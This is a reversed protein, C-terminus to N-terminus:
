VKTFLNLLILANFINVANLFIISEWDFVQVHAQKSWSNTMNNLLIKHLEMMGIKDTMKEGPFSDLYENPDILCAIYSRVKLGCLKRMVRRM